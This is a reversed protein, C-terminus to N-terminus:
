QARTPTTVSPMQGQAPTALLAVLAAGLAITSAVRLPSALNRSLKVNECREPDEGVVQGTTRSPLPRRGVLMAHPSVVPSFSAGPGLRRAQCNAEAVPDRHRATSGHRRRQPRDGGDAKAQRPQPRSPRPCCTVSPRGVRLGEQALSNDRSKCRAPGHQPAECWSASNGPKSKLGPPDDRM